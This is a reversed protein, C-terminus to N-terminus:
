KIIYNKLLWIPVEVCSTLGPFDRLPLLTPSSKRGQAVPPQLSRKKRNFSM